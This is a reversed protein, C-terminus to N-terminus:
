YSRSHLQYLMSVFLKVLSIPWQNMDKWLIIIFFWLIIINTSILCTTKKNQKKLYTENDYQTTDKKDKSKKDNVCHCICQYQPSQLEPPLASNLLNTTCHKVARTQTGLFVQALYQDGLQVGICEHSHSHSHANSLFYKSTSFLAQIFSQILSTLASLAWM